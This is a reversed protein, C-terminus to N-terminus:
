RLSKMRSSSCKTVRFATSCWQIGLTKEITLVSRGNMKWPRYYQFWWCTHLDVVRTTMKTANVNLV